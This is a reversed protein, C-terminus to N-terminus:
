RTVETKDDEDIALLAKRANTVERMALVVAEWNEETQDSSWRAIAENEAKQKERLTKLKSM